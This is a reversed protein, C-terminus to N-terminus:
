SVASFQLNSLFNKHSQSLQTENFASLLTKSWLLNILYIVKIAREQL